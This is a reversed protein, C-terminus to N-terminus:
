KVSEGRSILVAMVARQIQDCIQNTKYKYLADMTSKTQVDIDSRVSTYVSANRVLEDFSAKKSAYIMPNIKKLSTLEKQCLSVRDPENSVGAETQSSVPLSINTDSGQSISNRKYNHECGSVFFLPTTLLSILGIHRLQHLIM